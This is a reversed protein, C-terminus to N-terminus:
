GEYAGADPNGTRTVGNLDLMTAGSLLGLNIAPSGALLDFSFKEPSLNWSYSAAKFLPDGYVNNRIGSGLTNMNAFSYTTAGYKIAQSSGGNRYFVNNEITDTPAWKAQNFWLAPANYTSFVNNRITYGGMDTNQATTTDNWIIAAYGSPSTTAAAPGNQGVWITNNTIQNGAQKYDVNTYYSSDYFSFVIGQKGNNFILNNDIKGNNMGNMISIGALGNSHFINNQILMGSVHGNHQLGNWANGYFLNGTITINSNWQDRNGVYVGHEGNSNRWVSDEIRINTLDQMMHLGRYNRNADINRFTLDHNTNGAIADSDNTVTLGDFVLYSSSSVRISTAGDSMVPKEGPYAMFVIPQSATGNLGPNELQLIESYTGGRYMVMDGPKVQSRVAAWTQYPRAADNVAATSNNGSASIYFIRTPNYGQAKVYNMVSGYKALASATTNVSADADDADAGKPSAVGYGDGDNDIYYANTKGQGLVQYGEATTGSGVIVGGGGTPPPTTVVPNVVIQMTTSGTAKGDSASFAIGSYTGAQTSSPTWNLTRTSANFTAGTPLNGASYTLADGDADTASVTFTIPQGVTGTVNAVPNMVPAANAAAATIDIRVDQNATNVGDSAAFKITTWSGARNPTPAWSFVGTSANFTANSPVNSASLAVPKGEPDSAKVTFTLMQGVATTQSGLPTFVPAQNTAATINMAVDLKTSMRGDSAAFTVTTSTAAAPTWSFVGTAADFTAGAPLNQASYTIADGNADTAGLVLALQEGAEAALSGPARFTPATDQWNNMMAVLDGILVKGDGDFDGDAWAGAQQWHNALTTLDGIAVAGDGNCDGPNLGASTVLAGATSLLCRQELM